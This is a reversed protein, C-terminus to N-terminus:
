AVISKYISMLDSPPLMFITSAKFSGPLMLVGREKELSEKTLRLEGKTKCFERM